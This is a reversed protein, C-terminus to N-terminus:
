TLFVAKKTDYYGFLLWITVLYILYLLRFLVVWKGRGDNEWVRYFLLKPSKFTRITSPVSNVPISVGTMPFVIDRRLKIGDPVALNYLDASPPLFRVSTPVIRVFASKWAPVIVIVLWALVVMVCFTVKGVAKEAIGLIVNVGMVDSGSFTTIVGDATVVVPNWAM